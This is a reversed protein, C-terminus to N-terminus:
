LRIRGDHFRYFNGVVHQRVFQILIVGDRRSVGDRRILIHTNIGDEYLLAIGAREILVENRHITALPMLEQRIRNTFAIRNIHLIVEINRLLIQRCRVTTRFAIVIGDASCLTAIAYNREFQENKRVVRHLDVRSNIVVLQVERIVGHIFVERNLLTSRYTFVVREEREAVAVITEIFILHLLTSPSRVIFYFNALSFGTIAAVAKLNRLIIRQNCSVRDLLVLLMHHDCITAVAENGQFQRNVCQFLCIRHFCCDIAILRIHYTVIGDNRNSRIGTYINLIQVDTIALVRLIDNRNLLTDTFRFHDVIRDAFESVTIIRVAELYGLSVHRCSARGTVELTM